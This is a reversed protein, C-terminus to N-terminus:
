RGSLFVIRKLIPNPLDLGLRRWTEKNAIICARRRELDLSLALGLSVLETLHSVTLVKRERALVLIRKIRPVMGAIYLIDFRQHLLDKIVLPGTAVVQCDFLADKQFEELVVQNVLNQDQFATRLKPALILVRIVPRQRLHRELRVFRKLLEITLRAKETEVTVLTGAWLLRGCALFAIM